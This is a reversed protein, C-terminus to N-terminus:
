EYIKIEIQILKEEQENTTLRIELITKDTKEITEGITNLNKIKSIAEIEVNKSTFFAYLQKIAQNPISPSPLNQNKDGIINPETKMEKKLSM